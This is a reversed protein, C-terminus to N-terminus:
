SVLELYYQRRLSTMALIDAERWGYFRALQHVESLLRKAQAALETWLFDVIDFLIQWPHECAPCDLDLLIEAQPDVEVLQQSLTAIASEPISAMEVVQGAQEVQMLCRQALQQRAVASNAETVVAALDLSNPLRFQLTLDNVQCQHQQAPGVSLPGLETIRLDTTSLSFELQEQCKPCTALSDLQPGFTQERLALLYADRQGVSLAALSEWSVEPLAFQLCTLARDLPHQRQGLEWVRVIHEASLSPMQVPM